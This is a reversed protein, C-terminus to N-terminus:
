TGRDTGSLCDGSRQLIALLEQVVRDRTVEPLQWTLKLDGNDSGAGSRTGSESIHVQTRTVDAEFRLYPHQDPQPGELIDGDLSMWMTLRPNPTPGDGGSRGDIIAGGGNRQLRERVEQMVPRVNQECTSTFDDLFQQRVDREHAERESLHSASLRSNQRMEVLVADIEALPGSAVSEGLGDQGPNATDVTTSIQSPARM